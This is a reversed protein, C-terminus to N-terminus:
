NKYDKRMDVSYTGDALLNFDAKERVIDDGEYCHKQFRVPRNDTMSLFTTLTDHLSYIKDAVKTTNAILDMRVTEQGQYNVKRSVLKAEGGKLPGVYLSYNLTESEVKLGQASVGAMWLGALAFIVTFKKM